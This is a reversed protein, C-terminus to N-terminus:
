SLYTYIETWNNNRWVAIIIDDDMFIVRHELFKDRKRDVWNNRPDVLNEKVEPTLKRLYIMNIKRFARTVENLARKQRETM